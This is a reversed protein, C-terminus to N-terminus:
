FKTSHKDNNMKKIMYSTVTLLIIKPKTAATVPRSEKPAHYQAGLAMNRYQDSAFNDTRTHHLAPSFTLGDVVEERERSHTHMVDATHMCSVTCYANCYRKIECKKLLTNHTHM